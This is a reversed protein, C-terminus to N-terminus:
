GKRKGIGIGLRRWKGGNEEMIFYEYVVSYLSTMVYKSKEIERVERMRWPDFFFNSAGEPHSYDDYESIRM